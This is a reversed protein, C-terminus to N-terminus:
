SDVNCGHWALVINVSHELTGHSKVFHYDYHREGALSRAANSRLDANERTFNAHRSYDAVLRVVISPIHQVSSILSSLRNTPRNDYSIADLRRRIDAM